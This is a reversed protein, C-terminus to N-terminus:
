NSHPRGRFGPSVWRPNRAVRRRRPYESRVRQCHPARAPAAQAVIERLRDLNVPKVLHEVFGAAMSRARDRDRGYGTAAVLRMPRGGPLERLRAALDYGSM